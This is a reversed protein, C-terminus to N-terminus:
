LFFVDSIFAVLKQEFVFFVLVTFYPTIKPHFRASAQRGAFFGRTFPMIGETLV